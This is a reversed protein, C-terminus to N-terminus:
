RGGLRRTPGDHGVDGADGRADDGGGARRRGSAEGPSVERRLLVTAGLQFFPMLFVNWGGTGFMPFAIPTVDDPRLGWSTVTDYANWHIAGHDRVTEKPTGTSGSTHLLLHPDALAAEIAELGRADDADAALPDHRHDDDTPLSRFTPDADSREWADILDAGFPTEIVDVALDLDDVVAALEQEALRHSLPALLSGTKGTASYLDVLEVRNRSVAAVADGRGVGLARLAPPGTPASRWTPTRTPPTRGPAEVAVDDPTLAPRRSSV